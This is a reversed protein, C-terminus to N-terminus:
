YNGRPVVGRSGVAIWRCTWPLLFLRSESQSLASAVTAMMFPALSVCGDLHSSVIVPRWGM